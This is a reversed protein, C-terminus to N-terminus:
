GAVGFVFPLNHLGAKRQQALGRALQLDGIGLSAGHVEGLHRLNGLAYEPVIVIEGGVGRQCDGVAYAVQQDVLELVGAAALM